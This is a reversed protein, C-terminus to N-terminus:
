RKNMMLLEALLSPDNVPARCTYDQCVYATAKGKVMAMSRTFPALTALADGCQGKPHLLTILSPNYNSRVVSLMAETDERGLEGVIVIDQKPGTTLDLACLSWSSASPQTEINDQCFQLLISASHAIGPQGTM